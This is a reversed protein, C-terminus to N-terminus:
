RVGIPLNRGSFGRSPASNATGASSDLLKAAAQKLAAYLDDTFKGHVQWVVNGQPDALIIYADDPASFNVLKKWASENDYIPVFHFQEAAPVDKRMGHLIMSRVFGPAGQLEPIQFYAVRANDHYDAAIHKNWDRCIDGSKHSFGLVLILFQQSGPKPLFVESDDLAKAKVTPITQAHASLVALIMTLLLAPALRRRDM